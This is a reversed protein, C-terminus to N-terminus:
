PDESKSFLGGLFRFPDFGLFEKLDRDLWVPREMGAIAQVLPGEKSLWESAGLRSALTRLERWAVRGADLGLPLVVGPTMPAVVIDRAAVAAAWAGPGGAAALARFTSLEGYCGVAVKAVREEVATALHRYDRRFDGSLLGMEHRLDDPGVIRDFGADRRRAVLCTALEGQDFVGLVLARENPCLLDLGRLVARESPVPWDAVRWPWVSIAREAELERLIGLLELAQGLFDQSPSLREAFRDGVEELAGASIEAAWRAAHRSALAELSQPWPEERVDIRGTRTSVLKRLTTGTTVAVLGGAPRGPAPDVRESIEAAPPRRNAAPRFAEGLLVWQAHTFGEFSVDRTLM